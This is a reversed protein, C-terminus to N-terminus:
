KRVVWTVNGNKPKVQGAPFNEGTWIKKLIEKKSLDNVLFVVERSDNLAKFTLTIRKTNLAPVDNATVFKEKEELAKTGPFLSATHGDDGIGLLTIDILYDRDLSEQLELLRANYSDAAKEPGFETQIRLINRDPISIHAFLSESVNKYNSETDTPPVNREDGFIFYIREWPINMKALEAYVPIPTKGGALAIVCHKKSNLTDLIKTAIFAASEIPFNSTLIIQM